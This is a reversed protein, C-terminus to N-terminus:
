PGVNAGESDLKTQPRFLSILCRSGLFDWFRQQNQKTQVDFMTSSSQNTFRNTSMVRPDNDVEGVQLKKQKKFNHIEKNSHM